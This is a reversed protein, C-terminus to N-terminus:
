DAPRPCDLDYRFHENAKRCTVIKDNRLVFRYDQPASHHGPADKDNVTVYVVYGDDGEGIWGRSPGSWREYTASAHDFLRPIM